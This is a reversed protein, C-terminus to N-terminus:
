TNKSTLIYKQADQLNKEQNLKYQTKKKDIASDKIKMRTTRELYTSPDTTSIKYSLTDQLLIQMKSDYKQDM